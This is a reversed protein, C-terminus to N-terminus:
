SGLRGVYEEASVEPRHVQDARVDERWEVVWTDWRWGYRDAKAGYHSDLGDRFADAQERTSHISWVVPSWGPSSYHKVVCWAPVTPALGGYAASEVLWAAVEHFRAGAAHLEDVAKGQAEGGEVAAARLVGDPRLSLALDSLEALADAISEPRPPEVEGYGSRRRRWPGKVKGTGDSM